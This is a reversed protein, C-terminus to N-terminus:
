TFLPALHADRVLKGMEQDTPRERFRSAADLIKPLLDVDGATNLFVQPHGLVWHVATDLDGQDTLPEYWTAAPRHQRDQHQIQEAWPGRAAAKITQVAVGRRRCVELLAAFAAAYAPHRMLPYNYLLLVSDFDFRELTRAAEPEAPRGEPASEDRRAPSLL